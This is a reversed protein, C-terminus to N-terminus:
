RQLNQAQYEDLFVELWQLECDMQTLSYSFLQAVSWPLNKGYSQLKENVRRRDNQLQSRHENIVAVVREPELAPLSALGLYFNTLTGRPNRLAQYAAQLWIKKGNATLSFIQRAPGKKSSSELKGILWGRKAMKELIAYISSFGIRTWERMGREVIIQELQYGHSPQEALLTLLVLEADAIEKNRKPM